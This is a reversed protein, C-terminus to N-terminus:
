EPKEGFAADLVAKTAARRAGIDIAVPVGDPDGAIQTPLVKGVLTMFPGPNENAQRMLYAEGGAGALAGLIMDKLAKTNKNPTGKPRGQGSTRTKGGVGAM